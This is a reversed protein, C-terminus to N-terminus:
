FTAQWGVTVIGPGAFFSLGALEPHREKWEKLIARKHAGVALMPIGIVAFVGGVALSAYLCPKQTGSDVADTMCLPSTILNLGGLGTFIAGAVILGTGSPPEVDTGETDALAMSPSALLLALIVAIVPVARLRRM